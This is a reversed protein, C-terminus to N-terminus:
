AKTKGSKTNIEHRAPGKEAIAWVEVSEEKTSVIVDSV